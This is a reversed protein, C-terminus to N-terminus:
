FNLKSSPKKEELRNWVPVHNKVTKIYSQIAENRRQNKIMQEIDGQVETFKERGAQRHTNVRIIYFGKEDEVIPSMRNVPIEFAVKEVKESVLDGKEINQYRGGTKAKPGESHSVAVKDFSAGQLISNGLACIKQYAQQKTKHNKLQVMLQEFSVAQNIQYDEIHERYYDLMDQHTIEYNLKVDTSIAQRGFNTEAFTQKAHELSSGFKRLIGDLERLTEANHEVMLTCLQSIQMDMSQLRKLEQKDANKIKPLTEDISSVFADTVVETAREQFQELEEPKMSRKFALYLLKSDIAQSLLSRLLVQKQAAIQNKHKALEEPDMDKFMLWMVIEIQPILDGALIYEPGVTALVTTPEYVNDIVASQRDTQANTTIRNAPLNAVRPTVFSPALNSNQAAPKNFNQTNNAPQAVARGNNASLVPALPQAKLRHRDAVSVFVVVTTILIILSKM